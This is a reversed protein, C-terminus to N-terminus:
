NDLVANIRQQFVNLEQNGPIVSGNLFFTPTSNVGLQRAAQQNLSVNAMNRGDAVCSDFTDVDMGEVRQAVSTFGDATHEAGTGQLLFVEEHFALGLDSGQEAACLVAAASPQTRDGLAFPMVIWRIDDLYEDQLVPATTANFAACHPCGYDAIEVLTVDSELNGSVVCREPFDECYRNVDGVAVELEPTPEAATQTGNATSLILIALLGIVGAAVIGGILTWNTEQKNDDGRRSQRRKRTMNKSM